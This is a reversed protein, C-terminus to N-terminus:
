GEVASYIYNIRPLGGFDNIAVVDIRLQSDPYQKSLERALLRLKKQKALDVKEEAIGYGGSARTKVEVIVITDADQALIDIEGVTMRVNTELIKMGKQALFHCAMSEGSKGTEKRQFTM